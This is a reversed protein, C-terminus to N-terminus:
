VSVIEQLIFPRTKPTVVVQIILAKEPATVVSLLVKADEIPEMFEQNKKEPSIGSFPTLVGGPCIASVKIGDKWLEKSLAEALGTVAYKSACYASANASAHIGHISSLNVIHGNRSAIM